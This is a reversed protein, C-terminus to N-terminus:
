FCRICDERLKALIPDSTSSSTQPLSMPAVQTSALPAVQPIPASVDNPPLGFISTGIPPTVFHNPTSASNPVSMIPNSYTPAAVLQNTQTPYFNLPMSYQQQMPPASSIPLTSSPNVLIKLYVLLVVLHRLCIKRQM